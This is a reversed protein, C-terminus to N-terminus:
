LEDASCAYVCDQMIVTLVKDLGHQHQWLYSDVKYWRCRALGNYQATGDLRSDDDALLHRTNALQGETKGLTCVVPYRRSTGTIACYQWVMPFRAEQDGTDQEVYLTASLRM